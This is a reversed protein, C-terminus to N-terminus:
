YPGRVEPEPGRDDPWRVYGAAVRGGLRVSGRYTWGLSHVMITKLRQSAAKTQQSPGLGIAEFLERSHFRDAPPADPPGDELNARRRDIEARVLDAWPDETTEEAQREAAMAWLERDLVLSAGEAELVSAEAWLQDRDRALGRVDVEGAVELPWFRRAGTSDLLYGGENCTGVFVCQRHLDVTNKGYPPRVKDSARSLFARLTTVDSRRLGDLEAFEQGWIGCLLLAADKSALNGLEADSFWEGFLTRVGSSKGSGQTGKLVPMTDFKCGPRRQRRVAAVMFCRAVARTYADDATRFYRSFLREVRPTGDWRLRGLYNLVPNFRDEQALTTVAEYVHEKSPQYAVGQHKDVLHLRLARWTHDDLSRGLNEGWPLEGLFVVAQALEDFAPQVGSAAVAALANRFDDHAVDKSNLVLAARRSVRTVTPLAEVDAPDLPDAAFEEAASERPLLDARGATVLARYLTRETVPRAGDLRLSDWRYRILEEDHAYAPDSTSWAVFEERGAGATAFHCAMMLELWRDHDDSYGLVDLCRLMAQLEEPAHRGAEAPWVIDQVELAGLLAEPAEPVNGFDSLPDVAYPEGREPHISGPAVVQTGKTKFEVGRYGTLKTATRLHPPKAMYIHLGGSGTRVFPFSNRLDLGLDAELRDLSADGGNRPDVDVVLDRDRLRVGVNHGTGLWEVADRESGAPITTWRREVPSKGLLVPKGSRATGTAQPDHLRLYELGLGFLPRLYAEAEAYPHQM